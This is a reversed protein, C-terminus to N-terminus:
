VYTLQVWTGLVAFAITGALYFLAMGKQEDSMDELAKQASTEDDSHSKNFSPYGGAYKGIGNFLIFAGIIATGGSKIYRKVKFSYYAAAAAIALVIFTQALPPITTAGVTMFGFIGGCWGAILSVAFKDAFKASYYAIVGGLAFLVVGIAIIQGKKTEVHEPKFMHTNYLIGWM